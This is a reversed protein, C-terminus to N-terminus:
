ATIYLGLGHGGAKRAETGGIASFAEFLQAKREPAIGAGTDTVTVLLSNDEDRVVTIAVEGKHTFKAANSLLNILVQAVRRRDSTITGSDPPLLLILNNGNGSFFPHTHRNQPQGQPVHHLLVRWSLRSADLTGDQPDTASGSLVFVQGVAFRTSTAPASITPQPPDNGVSIQVSWPTSALGGSDTVVLRATFNGAQAYTHSAILTNASAGDGFDWRGTITNGDPDSSASGDFSVALPASGSTPNATASATPARNGVSYTIRRVDGSSTTYYLASNVPDFMLAIPRYDLSAFTNRAYNGGDETIYYITNSCYDAFFYADKYPAPWTSSTAFAGGVISCGVVHDYELIPDQMNAPRPNCAGSTSNDHKGERCYWGYDVNAGGISIEEWSNQGVDNIRFENTGHRFAFKFPNRLGWAYTEKCFQAANKTQNAIAGCIIGNPDSAYPNTAPISGDKNLRLIKGNM